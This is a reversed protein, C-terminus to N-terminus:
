SQHGTVFNQAKELRSLTEERGLIVMIAFLSPSQTSGTLALRVPQAVKGLKGGSFREALTRFSNELEQETFNQLNAIQARAAKIIELGDPGFFKKVAEPEYGEPPRYYIASMRAMEALTRARPKLQEIIRNLKEGPQAPINEQALFPLLLEALKDTPYKQIYQSNVWRLKESNMVGASRGVDKLDFLQQAEEMSFIELDGHSWGLRTLYNFLAEPLYGMNRYEQVSVSIGLRRYEEERRKSLKSGDPGHTLPMHAFFPTPMGFARYLMIQKPTNEVHDNGRIVHSIGMDIDDVVVSFNYTVTGDARALIWDDLKAPDIPIPGMILDDFQAPPNDPMRFRITYPRGAPDEDPPRNRCARDYVYTIKNAIAQQRKAELEEASCYCRYAKGERLLQELRARYLESRQSQFYPGEDIKIGLWALSDLIQDVAEKTSRKVDTDEIRLIFTGGHRRAFLYNFIATRVGGVHLYGTPSPAFRVRVPREM